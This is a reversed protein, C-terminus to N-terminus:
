RRVLEKRDLALLAPLVVLNCLVTLSMGVTLLIGLGSLGIHSSFGLSGFSTITTLASFFVARATTTGLLGSEGLDGSRAREVLHIGSDVGAGMLLPIVVVNFFNLPRGMVVMAAGTLVGALLLPALVTGVARVDRWLLWLIGTIVLIAGALAQAFAMRTVRAFAVLNVAVGTADADVARVGDVFRAFAAEEVLNERPFTQIRARGDDTMMREVLREPLNNRTIESAALGAHLRELQAPLSALLIRELDALAPGPDNSAEIRELFYGLKDRLDRVSAALPSSPAFSSANKEIFEHLRRLAAVQEAPPLTLPQESTGPGVDMLFAIDELIELKEDQDDPIYDSLTISRAVVDLDGLQRRLADATALDAAVSNAYWPSTAGADALLDNFARVSETSPDRMAVINADFRTESLLMLGALGAALATWRIARAHRTVFTSVGVAPLFRFRARNAILREPKVVFVSTLLAPLLTLTLFAIILLGVGTILGLEAVGRYDTPLFAFFGVATTIACLILSGGVSRTAEELSGAHDLDSRRLDAYRMGLHIGFDVGLGLFLVGAAVSIVNLNGVAVAAFGATWVLGVVLTTVIAAVIAVSRLGITLVGWVMALCFLGAVGIDWTLSLTEEQTLAPNGTVRVSVGQDPGLGLAKSAERIAALPAEAPLAQSFDLLPHAVIVRRNTIELSSGRLLVEEWSVAVPHERYVEVSASGVRDLIDSWLADQSGDQSIRGLGQEVLSAMNAISGDRELEAVVPQVLALQDSFSELEDVSRYLLAHREFFEGGGPLYVDEFHEDDAALRESLTSAADRAGEPTVADVVVLIANELNPFLAVFADHNRRAPLEPPFLEITDSDIGLNQAAYFACAGTVVACVLITVVSRRRALDVWRCLSKALAQDVIM